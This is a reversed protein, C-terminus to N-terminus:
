SVNSKQWKQISYMVHVPGTDAAAAPHSRTLIPQAKKRKEKQARTKAKQM